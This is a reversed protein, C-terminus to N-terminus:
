GQSDGALGWQMESPLTEPNNDVRFYRHGTAHDVVTYLVLGGQANWSLPTHVGYLGLQQATYYLPDGRLALGSDFGNDSLMTEFMGTTPEWCTIDDIGDGTVDGRFSHDRGPQGFKYIGISGDGSYIIYHAKKLPRYVAVDFLGDGDYDQVKPVDGARGWSTQRFTGDSAYVYFQWAHNEYRIIAPNSVGPTEWPGIAIQDGYRGFLLMNTWSGDAKRFGLGRFFWHLWGDINRIAVVDSPASPPNYVAPIDGPLGFPFALHNGPTFFDRVFWTASSSRWVVPNSNTDGDPDFPAGALVYPRPSSAPNKPDTGTIVENLDLMGDGDTDVSGSNSLDGDTFSNSCDTDEIDDSLGDRDSDQLALADCNTITVSNSPISVGHNNVCYAFVHIPTRGYTAPLYVQFTGATREENFSQSVIKTGRAKKSGEVKYKIQVEVGGDRYPRCLHLKVRASFSTTSAFSRSASVAIATIVLTAFWTGKLM